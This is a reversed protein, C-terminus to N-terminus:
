EGVFGAREGRMEDSNRVETYTQEAEYKPPPPRRKTGCYVRARERNGKRKQTVNSVFSRGILPNRDNDRGREPRGCVLLM